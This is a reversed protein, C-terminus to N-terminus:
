EERPKPCPPSRRHGPHLLGQADLFAAFAM